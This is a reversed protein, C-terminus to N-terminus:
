PTLKYGEGRITQIHRPRGAKPEIKKRLRGIQVDIKRSSTKSEGMTAAIQERSITQGINRALLTLLAAETSTLYIIDDGKRLQQHTIDFNYEGFLVVSEERNSNYHKLINGIRLLLEKPEFPKTLYDDIGTELGAVRDHAADRASLMLIPPPDIKRKPLNNALQLGTEGPMMVDLIMLDFRFLSLLARAEAANAAESVNYQQDTLYKRLLTRLKRDDDVILIHNM